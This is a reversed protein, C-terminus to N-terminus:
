FMNIGEKESWKGKKGEKEESRWRNRMGGSGRTV